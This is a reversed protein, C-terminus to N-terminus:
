NLIKKIDAEEDLTFKIGRVIVAPISENAQGMLISAAAALEDILAIRSKSPNKFLDEQERLELHSIGAIGIAMGVSGDREDRGLSDNIIVAVKKRSLKEIGNRIKKSSKDPDRPLLIVKKEEWSAMNSTDVGSSSMKFGLKHKTVIVNGKIFLVESAEDLYVQVIRPDRNTQKAITEAVETPIIDNLCVVANESKSVIKQAIVIIDGNEITINEKNCSDFILQSIDDGSRVIPISSIPILRVEKM